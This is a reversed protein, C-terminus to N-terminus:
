DDRSIRDLRRVKLYQAASIFGVLVGLVVAVWIAWM